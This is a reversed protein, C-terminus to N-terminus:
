IRGFRRERKQYAEIAEHLDEKGFSPWLKPTFYLETYSIQWLLFNSIRMEGSTRILLDPDPINATYLYSAFIDENLDNANIKGAAADKMIKKTADVIEPRGGYSLALNLILKSNNKTEELIDKIVERVEIPLDTIRGIVNLRIQHKRFEKKKKVLYKKLLKMLADIEKKPRNWNEVSFTYFTVVKIGIKLAEEIIANVTNAGARHGAIRPLGRQKAWRGNGDMIFAIHAPINQENIKPMNEKITRSREGCKAFM